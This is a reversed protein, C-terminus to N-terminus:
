VRFNIYENSPVVSFFFQSLPSLCYLIKIGMFQTMINQLPVFQRYIHIFRKSNRNIFVSFFCASVIVTKKLKICLNGFMRRATSVSYMSNNNPTMITSTSTLLVSHNNQRRSKFSLHLIGPLVYLAQKGVSCYNQAGSIKNSASGPPRAIWTTPRCGSAQQFQPNSDRWPCSQRKRINHRTCTTVQAVPWDRTRPTRDVTQTNTHKGSLTNLHL